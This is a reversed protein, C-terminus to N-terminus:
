PHRESKAERGGSRKRGLYKNKRKKEKKRGRRRHKQASRDKGGASRDMRRRNRQEGGSPPGPGGRNSAESINGLTQSNENEFKHEIEAIGERGAIRKWRAKVAPSARSCRSFRARIAKLRVIPRAFRRQLVFLISCRRLCQCKPTRITKFHM